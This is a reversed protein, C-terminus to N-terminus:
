SLGNKVNDIDSKLSLKWIKRYNDLFFVSLSLILPGLFVGLFGWVVIGGVVGMFVLFTSINAKDSIFKPRVFTDIMGIVCSGWTLLILANKYDNIMILYVVGPIWVFSAGVFPLVVLITM